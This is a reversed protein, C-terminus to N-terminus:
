AGSLISTSSAGGAIRAFGGRGGRKEVTRGMMYVGCVGGWVYWFDPPLTFEITGIADIIAGILGVYVITPRARKTYSDGQELEAVMIREKARIEEKVAALTQADRETLIRELELDRERKSLHGEQFKTVVGGIQEVASGVGAGFLKSLWGM